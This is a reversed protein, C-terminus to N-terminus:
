LTIRIISLNDGMATALNDLQKRLLSDDMPLSEVDMEKHIGDSCLVLIDDSITDLSVLGATYSSNDGMICQTVCAEYLERDSEKFTGAAKLENIMSHDTTVFQTKGNRILYARSDGLWAVSVRGRAVLAAVIVSGMEPVNIAIRKLMLCSNAYAFSQRLLEGEPYDSFHSAVFECVSDGVIKAAIEGSEYGGMGDAVVYLSIGDSVDCHALYDQNTERGGKNTYEFVKM